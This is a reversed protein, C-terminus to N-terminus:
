RPEGRAEPEEVPVEFQVFWDRCVNGQRLPMQVVMGMLGGRENRYDVVLTDVKRKILMVLSGAAGFAAVAPIMTKGYHREGSLFVVKQVRSYPITVAARRGRPQLTLERDTLTLTVRANRKLAPVGVVHFAKEVVVPAPRAPEADQAAIPMAAALALAGFLSSPSM